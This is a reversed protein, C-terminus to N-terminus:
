GRRKRKTLKALKREVAVVRDSLKAIETGFAALVAAIPDINNTKAM